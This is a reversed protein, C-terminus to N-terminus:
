HRPELVLIGPMLSESSKCTLHGQALSKDRAETKKDIFHCLLLIERMHRSQANSSEIYIFVSLSYKASPLFRKQSNKNGFSNKSTKTIYLLWLFKYILLIDLM